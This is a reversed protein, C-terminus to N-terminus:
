DDEKNNKLCSEAFDKLDEEFYMSFPNEVIKMLWNIDDSEATEFFDTREAIDNLFDDTYTRYEKKLEKMKYIYYLLTEEKM